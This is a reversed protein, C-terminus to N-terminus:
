ESLKPLEMEVMDDFPVAEIGALRATCTDVIKSLAGKLKSRFVDAARNALVDFPELIDGWRALISPKLQGLNYWQYDNEVGVLVPDPEKPDKPHLVLIHSFLEQAHAAVQLVRLPIPGSKYKTINTRQPCLTGYVFVEQATMLRYPCRAEKNDVIKVLEKQGELGLHEILKIAEADCEPGDHFTETVEYTEVLMM